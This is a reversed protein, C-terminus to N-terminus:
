ANTRGTKELIRQRYAEDPRSHIRDINAQTMFHPGGMSYAGILIRAAKVCMATIREAEGASQGLAIMGHNQMLVVKPLEHYTDVHSLIADRVAHGLKLGPDTYPVYASAPGCVVIEDPFLRNAVAAQAHASCLISNVAIPHTHAIFNAQGLTLCLAHFTTETSPWRQEPNDVTAALLREKVETDSLDQEELMALAADIRVRVFGGADIGHLQGGSAKVWFTEEDARASTNGEGLIVYDNEPLAITRSMAVLQSLIDGM